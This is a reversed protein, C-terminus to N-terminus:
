SAAMNAEAHFLIQFLTQFRAKSAVMDAEPSLETSSAVRDAEDNLPAQGGQEPGQTRGQKLDEWTVYAEYEVNNM